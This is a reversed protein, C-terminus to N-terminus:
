TQNILRSIDNILCHWLILMVLDSILMLRTELLYEVQKGMTGNKMTIESVLRQTYVAEQM